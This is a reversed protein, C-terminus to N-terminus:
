KNWYASTYGKFQDYYLDISGSDITFKGKSNLSFSPPTSIGLRMHAYAGNLGESSGQKYFKARLFMYDSDIVNNPSNIGNPVLDVTAHVSHGEYVFDSDAIYVTKTTSSERAKYTYFGNATQAVITGNIISLGIADSLRCAPRTLWTFSSSAEANKEDIEILLTQVKIWSNSDTARRRTEALYESYTEETVIINGDMTETLKIYTTQSSVQNKEDIGDALSDITNKDLTILVDMPIQYLNHIKELTSDAVDQQAFAVATLSLCMTLALLLSFLKKVIIDEKQM